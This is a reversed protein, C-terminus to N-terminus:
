DRIRLGLHEREEKKGQGKNEPDAFTSRFSVETVGCTACTAEFKEAVGKTFMTLFANLQKDDAKSFTELMAADESQNEGLSLKYLRVTEARKAELNAKGIKAFADLQTVKLELDSKEKKLGAVEVTLDENQKKLQTDAGKSKLEGVEKELETVKTLSGTMRTHEDAEIFKLASLKDIHAQTLEADAALGLIKRAFELLAKEMVPKNEIESKLVIGEKKYSYSACYQKHSNYMEKAYGQVQDFAAGYEPNIPNGDKDLMKAFPDAGLWLISSEHIDILNTVKRAVMRGDAHFQGICRMFCDEDAFDDHSPEWEFEVTVSNSYIGPPTMLLNSALYENLKANILYVIDVGAPVKKGEFIKAESWSASEIVGICNGSYQWHETFASKGVFKKLARRL